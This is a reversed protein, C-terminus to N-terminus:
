GLKLNYGKIFAFAVCKLHFLSSSMISQVTILHGYFMRMFHFKVLQIM